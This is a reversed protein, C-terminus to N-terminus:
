SASQFSYTVSESDSVSSFGCLSAVPTFDLYLIGKQYARSLPLAFEETGEIRVKIETKKANADSKMLFSVFAIALALFALLVALFGLSFLGFFRNRDERRQKKRAFLAVAESSRRKKPVRIPSRPAAASIGAQSPRASPARRERRPESIGAQKKM